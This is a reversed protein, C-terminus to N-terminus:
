FVVKYECIPKAILSDLKLTFHKFVRNWPIAIGHFIAWLEAYVLSCFGINSAYSFVETGLCEEWVWLM